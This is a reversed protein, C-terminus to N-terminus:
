IINTDITNKARALIDSMSLASIGSDKGEKLASRLASLKQEYEQDKRVDGQKNILPKVINCSTTKIRILLEFQIDIDCYATIKIL